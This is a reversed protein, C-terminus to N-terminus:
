GASAIFLASAVSRTSVNLLAAAEAQSIADTRMRVSLRRGRPSPAAWRM